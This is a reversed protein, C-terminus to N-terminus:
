PFRYAASGEDPASPTIASPELAKEAIDVGAAMGIGLMSDTGSVPMVPLSIATAPQAKAETADPATARVALGALGSVSATNACGVDTLRSAPLSGTQAMAEDTVPSDPHLAKAHFGSPDCTNAEPADPTVIKSKIPPLRDTAEAILRVPAVLMETDESLVFASIQRGADFAIVTSIPASSLQVVPVDVNREEGAAVSSVEAVAPQASDDVFRTGNALTPFLQFAPADTGRPNVPLAMASSESVPLMKTM